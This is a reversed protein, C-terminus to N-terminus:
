CTYLYGSMTKFVEDNDDDDAETICMEQTLSVSLNGFVYFCFGEEQEEDLETIENKKCRTGNKENQQRNHTCTNVITKRKL